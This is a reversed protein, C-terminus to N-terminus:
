LNSGHATSRRQSPSQAATQFVPTFFMLAAVLVRGRGAQKAKKGAPAATLQKMLCVRVAGDGHGCAASAGDNSFTMCCLTAPPATDIVTWALALPPEGGALRACRAADRVYDKEVKPNFPPLPLRPARASVPAGIDADGMAAAKRGRRKGDKPDPPLPEDPAVLGQRQRLQHLLERHKKQLEPLPGWQIPTSNFSALETEDVQAWLLAGGHAEAEAAEAGGGAASVAPPSITLMRIRVHENLLRLV